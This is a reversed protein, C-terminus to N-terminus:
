LSRPNYAAMLSEADMAAQMAQRAKLSSFPLHTHDTLLVTHLGCPLRLDVAQTRGESGVLLTDPPYHIRVTKLGALIMTSDPIEVIRLADLLVREGDPYIGDRDPQANSDRACHSGAHAHAHQRGGDNACRGLDLRRRVGRPRLSGAPLVTRDVLDM